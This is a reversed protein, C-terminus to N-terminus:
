NQPATEGSGADSEAGGAQLMELEGIVGTMLANLRVQTDDGAPYRYIVQLTRDNWPHVMYVVVEEVTGGDETFRGRSAYTTGLPSVYESQGKYDGDPRALIEEKHQKVAAVLNIGGIEAKGAVVSVRGTAGEGAPTLEITEGDNDAVVFESLAAIAMGTATNEVRVTPVPPPAEEQKKCAGLGFTIAIATTLIIPHRMSLNDGYKITTGDYRDLPPNEVSAEAGTELAM